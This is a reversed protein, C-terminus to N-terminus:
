KNKKQEQEFKNLKEKAKNMRKLLLNEKLGLRKARKEIIYKDRKEKEDKSLKLIGKKRPHKGRM